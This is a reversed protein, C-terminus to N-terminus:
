AEAAARLAPQGWHSPLDGLGWCGGWRLGQNRGGGLMKGSWDQGTQGPCRGAPAPCEQGCYYAPALFSTVQGLDCLSGSGAQLGPWTCELTVLLGLLPTAQLWSAGAGRGRQTGTEGTSLAAPEWAPHALGSAQRCSGPKKAVTM